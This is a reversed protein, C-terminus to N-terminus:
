ETKNNNTEIVENIINLRKAKEIEKSFQEMNSDSDGGMLSETAAEVSTLPISDAEKGLKAREAKVEKVPDIHPFMPGTFRANLYSETVMWNGKNFALLYGPAQIKGKLIETHLWFAYVRDYFQTQFSDREFSITHEWDKTAARSASFSDNYLSFAVNPPIGISACIINANTEYFEKFFMENKSELQKLDSGIPMNIAQKNTTAAVKNALADGNDNYPSGMNNENDADFFSNLKDGLPNTGDSFQNHTIAYAIKQREEASGVAAEKYREVKKLTELSTSIVPLGRLNDIRYKSGYVLFAVRLGQENKALVRMTKGGKIKVHYAIHEKKEDVEVGNKLSNGKAVVSGLTVDSLHCTDIIEINVNGKEYRLVVLNDGAIKSNKFSEKALDQLNSEGSYSSHKSKAWLNFRAETIENFEESEIKIGESALVRKGPSCQLKLGKAVIWITFRNLVTKAIESELYAQWSRSALSSHDLRYNIIPGIEGVNKEGNFSKTYGAGWTGSTSLYAKTQEIQKQERKISIDYGLINM